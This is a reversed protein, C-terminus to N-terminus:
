PSAWVCRFGLAVYSDTPGSILNASFVGTAANLDWNGGRYFGGGSYNLYVYGLGGHEGSNKSTYNGTPGWKAKTGNTGDWPEQSVFNDDGNDVSSDDKVWESVNGAVDWIVEGSLLTHTRKQTFEGSTNNACNAQGTGNCPDNDTSAALASYPNGDSHGRNLANAGSTSGNSWNLHAGGSRATEIERAMAQWQSNTILDYGAGLAQCKSIATPRDIWVWPTSAAQSTATGGVDKMEYKAVCFPQTQGVDSNARVCLFNSSCTLPCSEAVGSGETDVGSDISGLCAGFGGVFLLIGSLALGTRRFPSSLPMVFSERKEHSTKNLTFAERRDVFLPHETDPNRAPRIDTCQLTHVCAISKDPPEHNKQDPPDPHIGSLGSWLRRGLCARLRRARAPRAEEVEPPLEKHHIVRRASPVRARGRPVRGVCKGVANGCCEVQAVAQIAAGDNRAVAHQAVSYQTRIADRIADGGLEARSCLGPRLLAREKSRCSIRVVEHRGLKKVQDVPRVQAVLGHERGVGRELDAYPHPNRQLQAM